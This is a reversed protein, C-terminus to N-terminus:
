QYALVNNYGRLLSRPMQQSLEEVTWYDKSFKNLTKSIVPFQHMGIENGALTFVTGTIDKAQDTCLYLLFPCLAEADPTDVAKPFGRQGPISNGAAAAYDGEYSARTRAWPAFANVTIGSNFFECAAAQTLGVAGANATCYHAMKVIDGMFAKSTCNIVRGWNKEAMYPIAYKMVNFYGKPKISTVRDWLEETIETLAGGGFAGAVNVLIDITGFEEVASKVLRQADADNSIDAYVPLAEGGGDRITKATSEADGIIGAYVDDFRKREEAPLANYAAESMTVLHTSGPKRNNTVVKAGEAAFALAVARGVGQGSGTVLVVKDKFLNGM